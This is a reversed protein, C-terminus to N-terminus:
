RDHLACPETGADAARPARRACHIDRWPTKSCRLRAAAARTSPAVRHRFARHLFSVAADPRALRSPYPILERPFDPVRWIDDPWGRLRTLVWVGDKVKTIRYVPETYCKSICVRSGDPM